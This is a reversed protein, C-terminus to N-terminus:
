WRCDSQELYQAPVHPLTKPAGWKLYSRVALIAFIACIFVLDYMGLMLSKIIWLLEGAISFLFAGRRQNGIGYLGAALLLSGGWGLCLLTTM